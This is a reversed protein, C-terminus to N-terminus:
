VVPMILPKLNRHIALTLAKHRNHFTEFLFVHQEGRANSLIVEKSGLPGAVANRCYSKLHNWAQLECYSSFQEEFVRSRIFYECPDNLSFDPSTRHPHETILGLAPVRLTEVLRWLTSTLTNGFHGRAKQVLDFSPPSDQAYSDWVDQLFILRGAGYNAEAELHAHCAPSLTTSDDGLWLDQHWPVISHIIEHAENWRLKLPHLSQDILIKKRDPLYLAKLSLKGIAELLLSPRKLIQKGAVVLKSLYQNQLIGTDTSTYYGRDLELLALVDNLDLPPKPFALGQRIKLIQDDIDKAVLPDLFTNRM